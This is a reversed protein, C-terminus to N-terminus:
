KPTFVLLPWQWTNRRRRQIKPIEVSSKLSHVMFIVIKKSQKWILVFSASYSSICPLRAWNSSQHNKRGLPAQLEILLWCKEFSVFSDNLNRISSAYIKSTKSFHLMMRSAIPAKRMWLQVERRNASQCIGRPIKVHVTETSVWM